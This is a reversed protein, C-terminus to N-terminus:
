LNWIGSDTYWTDTVPLRKQKRKKGLMRVKFINYLVQKNSQIQNPMKKTVTWPIEIYM